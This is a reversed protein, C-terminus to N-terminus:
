INDVTLTVLTQNLLSYAIEGFTIPGNVNKINKGELEGYLYNLVCNCSFLNTSPLNQTEEDFKSIYNPVQQPLKYSKSKFVPAFFSVKKNEIDVEKICVNISAGSYNAILPLKSDINNEMIYEAFNVDRGNIMCNSVEFADNYFKIEDGNANPKFINVINVQAFKNDPLSVHIAVAKNEFIENTKGCFVKPVDNSNLDSGSVWGVIPNNYLGDLFETQIAYNQHIKTFPPIILITYGNKYTDKVINEISNEDYIEIKYEDNYLEIQNVFIKNQDFKCSDEDMFYPITGAIWNGIPLKKLLREDAALSLIMGQKIMAVVEEFTYLKSTM